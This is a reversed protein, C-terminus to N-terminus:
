GVPGPKPPPPQVGAPPAAADIEAAQLRSLDILVRDDRLAAACWSHGGPRLAIRLGRARGLKVAEIVDQDSAATVIVEPYRAPRRENWVMRLRTAEYDPDGRWLTTATGGLLLRGGPDNM